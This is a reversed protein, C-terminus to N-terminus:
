GNNGGNGWYGLGALQEKIREDDEWKEVPNHQRKGNRISLLKEIYEKDDTINFRQHYGCEPCKYAMQCGASMMGYIIEGNPSLYSYRPVM